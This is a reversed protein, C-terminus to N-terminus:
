AQSLSGQRSGLRGNQGRHPRVGRVPDCRQRGVALVVPSARILGRGRGLYQRDAGCPRDGM